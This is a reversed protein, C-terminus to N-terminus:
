KVPIAMLYMEGDSAKWLYSWNNKIVPTNSCELLIDIAENLSLTEDICMVFLAYFIAVDDTTISANKFKNLTLSSISNDENMIFMFKYGTDEQRSYLDYVISYGSESDITEFNLIEWKPDTSNSSCEKLKQIVRKVDEPIEEKQLFVYEMIEEFSFQTNQEFCLLYEKAEQESLNQIESENEPFKELLQEQSTKQVCGFLSLVMTFSCILSWIKKTKM